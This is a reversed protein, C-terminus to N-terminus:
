KELGLDTLYGGGPIALWKTSIGYDTFVSKEGDLKILTYKEELALKETAFCGLLVPKSPELKCRGNWGFLCYIRQNM